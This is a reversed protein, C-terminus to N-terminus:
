DENSFSYRGITLFNQWPYIRGAVAATAMSRKSRKGKDDGQARDRHPGKVEQQSNVNKM